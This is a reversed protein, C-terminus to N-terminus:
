PEYSKMIRQTIEDLWKRTKAKEIPPLKEWEIEPSVSVVTKDAGPIAPDVGIEVEKYPIDDYISNPELAIERESMKKYKVEPLRSRYPKPLGDRVKTPLLGTKTWEVKIIETTFPISTMEGHALMKLTKRIARVSKSRGHNCMVCECLDDYVFKCSIM